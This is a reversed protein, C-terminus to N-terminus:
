ATALHLEDSFVEEQIRQLTSEYDHEHSLPHWNLGDLMHTINDRVAQYPDSIGLEALAAGSAIISFAGYTLSWLGFVIDEAAMGPPLELDGQAVADRVIGGVIGTCTQECCRMVARRDETTKEWVSTSRLINEVRFYDSFLRVFLEGAMGIATLRERPRGQFAAGRRFMDTRKNMTEIALAIIIEEKCGFHNYVTGKSYEIAAAVRDMSLGHYGERILM